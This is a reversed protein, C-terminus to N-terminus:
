SKLEIYKLVKCNDEILFNDQTIKSNEIGHLLASYGYYKEPRSSVILYNGRMDIIINALSSRNSTAICEYELNFHDLKNILDNRVFFGNVLTTAVLTYGKEEAIRTISKISAGFSWWEGHKYPQYIDIHSPITSNYECIILRPKLKDLSKFVWYDNGDIDISLMDIDFSINNKILINELTNEGEADVFSEIIKSNYKSMYKALKCCSEHDAEIFIGKINYKSMMYESNSLPGYQGGFELFVKSEFGINKFIEEIIGDEGFQSTIKQEYTNLTQKSFIISFLFLANLILKNM